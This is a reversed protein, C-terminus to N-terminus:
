PKGPDGVMVFGGWCFPYAHGYRKKVIKMEKLAAQRLAQCRNMNRKIINNYFEVMLERTEKDPVAWLSMILSKAGAQDFARRLGFVGEGTKVDGLGTDCASLVVMDTGRLRLGLIEEATVIGDEMQKDTIQLSRNAGALVFGSRLMPNEIRVKIGNQKVPMLSFTDFGRAMPYAPLNSLEQDNLFFGHTALHLIKPASKKKLVEELAEGGLFIESKTTDEMIKQIAKVEKRAGPLREYHFGKLDASRRVVEEQKRDFLALKQLYPKKKEPDLDFDPDGMLLAKQGQEKIQGFGIVDRGASLYNFTYDEILYKGDPGQLVEFPILNLNGDPSIFIEKIDGLDKQLPEFVMEYIKRSSSVSKEDMISIEKKLKAVEKDIEAAGGLDIMGVRDGKGAHLIFAIYHAPKLKPEKLITKFDPMIVRAFEFLVTNQPLTSAVQECDVNGIKQKLAFAQSLQSLRTELRQKEKKVDALKRRYAEVGEKGPGAFTLNSLKARVMALEQFTKVAQLDESYILAEQFSKQAELIVGKRKLWFNLADKRYLHNQSLHQVILSLFVYLSV